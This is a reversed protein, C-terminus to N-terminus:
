EDSTLGDYIVRTGEVRAFEPLRHPRAEKENMIDFVQWGRVTLADAVLSRHCRWPLAEACLIAAPKGAAAAILRTLGAEFEPTDM